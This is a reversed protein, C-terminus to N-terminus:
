GSAQDLSDTRCLRCHDFRRLDGDSHGADSTALPSSRHDGLFGLYCGVMLGFVATPLGFNRDAEVQHRVPAEVIRADGRAIIEHVQESM